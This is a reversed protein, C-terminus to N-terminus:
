KLRTAKVLGFALEPALQAAYLLVRPLVPVGFLRQLRRGWKMPGKFERRISQSYEQQWRSLSIAGRLYQDALPACLLASRLAMSMGDGCLPPIMIAADGVNPVIDWALPKRNLHVPAVATQTGHVPVANRLKRYLSPNRDCAADILGLISKESTRFAERKLLAAVNVLGGEIPSIGLYGGDFFYLEVVPEMEIGSFHSKVGIYANKVSGVPQHGPLGSRCNAGWAAIVARARYTHSVEGQKAHIIFGRDSPLVSTVTTATQVHVGSSSAARHLTSDLLFRSVGLAASPLPIELTNGSSIILRTRNILVPQLSEVVGHLGLTNLMSRSEPSLFEGCVKHRPFHNRDILVTEYGLDALSKALSSGAIGAGLVAVDLIRNM